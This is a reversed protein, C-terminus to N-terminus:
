ITLRLVMDYYSDETNIVDYGGAGSLIQKLEAKEADSMNDLKRKAENKAVRGDLVKNIKLQEQKIAAKEAMYKQNLKELQDDTMSKYDPM